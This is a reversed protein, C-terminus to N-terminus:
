IEGVPFSSVCKRCIEQWINKEAAFFRSKRSIPLLTHAWGREYRAALINPQSAQWPSVRNSSNKLGTFPGGSQFHSKRSISSKIAPPSPSVAIRRSQTAHHSKQSAQTQASSSDRKHGVTSKSQFSSHRAAQRMEQRVLLTMGKVWHVRCKVM